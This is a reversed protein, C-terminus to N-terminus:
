PGISCTEGNFVLPEPNINIENGIIKGDHALCRFPPVSVEIHIHPLMGGSHGYKGRIDQAVGIIDGAVIKSGVLAEVPQVYFIKVWYNEGKIFVGQWRADDFYPRAKRVIRGNIPSCVTEKPVVILDIGRHFREGRPALFHGDGQSDVRIHPSVVPSRFMM